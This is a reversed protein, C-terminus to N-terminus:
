GTPRAARFGVRAVDRPLARISRLDRVESRARSIRFCILRPLRIMRGSPSGPQGGAEPKPGPDPRCKVPTRDIRKPKATSAQQPGASVSKPTARGGGKGRQAGKKPSLLGKEMGARLLEQLLKVTDNMDEGEPAIFQTISLGRALGVVLQLLPSSVGRPFERRLTERSKEEIKAQVPALKERLATDSRSGQLIELVAVGLPRSLIKWAADPYALLRERPEDIGALLEGYLRVEEEYDAEVVFTMLDAKSPFQHLMAGRSVGAEEAVMITTTAGYGHEFLCKVAADLLVQRTAASREAQTRRKKEAM